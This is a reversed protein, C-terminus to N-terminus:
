GQPKISFPVLSGGGADGRWVKFTAKSGSATPQVDSSM